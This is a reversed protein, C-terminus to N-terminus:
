LVVKIVDGQDRGRDAPRIDERRRARLAPHEVEV